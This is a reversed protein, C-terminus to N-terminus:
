KTPTNIQKDYQKKLDALILSLATYGPNTVQTKRESLVSVIIQYDLDTIELKLTQHM